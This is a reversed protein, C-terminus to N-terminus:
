SNVTEFGTVFSDFASVDATLSDAILMFDFVCGDKKLVYVVYRKPVGDLSAVLETRLSERGSVELLEQSKVERETFHLFLHHTLSALPVDDGDMHCRGNVAVTAGNRDDRYAVLAQEVEIPRWSTPTPGIRFALEGSQYVRGDFKPGCAACSLWVCTVFTAFGSRRQGRFMGSGHARTMGSSVLVSARATEHPPHRGRTARTLSARGTNM